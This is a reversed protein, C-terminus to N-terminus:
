DVPLRQNHLIAYKHEKLRYREAYAIALDNCRASYLASILRLLNPPVADKPGTPGPFRKLLMTCIKRATPYEFRHLAEVAVEFSDGEDLRGALCLTLKRQYEKDLRQKEVSSLANEDGHKRSRLLGYRTELQSLTAANKEVDERLTAIVWDVEPHHMKLGPKPYARSLESAWLAASYHAGKEADEGIQGLYELETAGPWRPPEEFKVFRAPKPADAEAQSNRKLM